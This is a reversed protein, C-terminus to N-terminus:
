NTIYDLEISKLSSRFYFLASIYCDQHKQRELIILSDRSKRKKQESARRTVIRNLAFRIVFLSLGIPRRTQTLAFCNLQIGFILDFRKDTNTHKLARTKEIGITFASTIQFYKFGCTFYAWSFIAWRKDANTKIKTVCRALTHLEFPIEVIQASVDVLNLHDSQHNEIKNWRHRWNLSGWVKASCLCLVMPHRECQWKSKTCLEIHLFHLQCNFMGIRNSLPYMSRNSTISQRMSRLTIVLVLYSNDRHLLKSKLEQIM